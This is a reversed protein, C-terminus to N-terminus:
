PALIVEMIIFDMIPFGTSATLGVALCLLLGHKLTCALTPL